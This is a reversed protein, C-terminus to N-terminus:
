MQVYVVFKGDYYVDDFYKKVPEFEFYVKRHAERIEQKINGGKLALIGNPIANIHTKSFLNQTWNILNDFSAVARTLVFDYKDKLQEARIHQTKINTLGIKEAVDKVVTLKKGVSDVLMFNVKPFLIALPIGPFGGGTGLDLIHSDPAFQLFKAIALSHLVHHLYFEEMDKRSIVNIKENWEIYLPLLQEFQKIQVDSLNPFYKLLLEMFYFPLIAFM